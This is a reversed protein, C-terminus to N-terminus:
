LVASFCGTGCGAGSSRRRISSFRSPLSSAPVPSLRRFSFMWNLRTSLLASLSSLTRILALAVMTTLELGIAAVEARLEAVQRGTGRM